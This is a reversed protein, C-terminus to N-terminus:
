RAPPGVEFRGKRFPFLFHGPDRSGLKTSQRAALPNGSFGRQRFARDEGYEGQLPTIGVRLGLANIKVTFIASGCSWRPTVSAPRAQPEHQGICLGESKTM